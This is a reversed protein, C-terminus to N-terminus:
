FRDQGFRDSHTKLGYSQRLEKRRKLPIGLDSARRCITNTTRKLRIAIRDASLGKGALDELLRLEDERWENKRWENKM